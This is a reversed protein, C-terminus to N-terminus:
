LNDAGSKQQPGWVLCAFDKLGLLGLNPICESAGLVWQGFVSASAGMSGSM